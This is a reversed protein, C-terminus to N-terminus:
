DEVVREKAIPMSQPWPRDSGLWSEGEKSTRKKKMSGSNGAKRNREKEQETKGELMGADM